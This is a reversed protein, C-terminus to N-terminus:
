AWEREKERQYRSKFGFWGRPWRRDAMHSRRAEDGLLEVSPPALDLGTFTRLWRLVDERAGDAPCNESMFFPEVCVRLLWIRENYDASEWRHWVDRVWARREPM